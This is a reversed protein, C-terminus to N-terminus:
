IAAGRRGLRVGTVGRSVFFLFAHMLRGFPFWIFFACLSLIHLSLLTEYRAGIHMTALLGTAIPLVTVIWSVYDDVRSILRTVPDNLRRVMAAVFAALTVVGVLEVFNSPLTAWSLGTLSKIFLVHPAFLFVVIALGIHSVYGNVFTFTNAKKFAPYPWLKRWSAEFWAGAASPAGERPTAPVLRWPLALVGVLRWTVGLAFVVLSAELAPGRAFDLLTM